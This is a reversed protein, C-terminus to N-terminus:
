SDSYLVVFNARIPTQTFRPMLVFHNNTPNFMVTGKYDVATGGYICQVAIGKVSAGSPLSVYDTIDIAQDATAGTNPAYSVVKAKLMQTINSNLTNIQAQLSTNGVAGMKADIIDLNGGSGNNADSWDGITASSAVKTLGINTTTSM